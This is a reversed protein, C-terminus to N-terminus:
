EGEASGWRSHLSGPTYSEEYEITGTADVRWILSFAVPAGHEIKLLDAVDVPAAVAKVQEEGGSHARGTVEAIYGFTGNRIRQKELLRPAKEALAADFWSTSAAVPQDDKTFRVRRRFLVQAGESLGLASAVQDTATTIGTETIVAYQGEPYIFGTRAATRAHEAASRSRLEESTVFNGGARGPLSSLYGEAQLLKLARQATASAVKYTEILSRTTPAKDGPKLTGDTIEDRIRAAIQRYVPQREIGSAM